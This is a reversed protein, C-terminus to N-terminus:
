ECNKKEYVNQASTIGARVRLRLLDRAAETAPFVDRAMALLKEADHRQSFHTLVLRRVRAARAVEAAQVPTSHGYHAARGPDALTAEHVLLDAGAALEVVADCPATDGSFVASAGRRSPGVLEGPAITRGQWEVPEGAVLRQRLPGAPLGLAEARAADFRGPRAPADIRYALAPVSHNAMAVSIRLRKVTLGDGPALERVEISYRRSQHGVKLLAEVAVATGVPGVILLPRRRNLLSMSQCLGPLGFLHDGHLHTLAVMDLRVPALGRQMLRRQTGEGCDVLLTAPGHRVAVASLSREVTPVAAATGLFLLEM